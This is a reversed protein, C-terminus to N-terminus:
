ARRPAGSAIAISCGSQSCSKGGAIRSRAYAQSSRYRAGQSPCPVYPGVSWRVFRGAASPVSPVPALDQLRGEAPGSETPTIIRVHGARLGSRAPAVLGWGCPFSGGGEPRSKGPPTGSRISDKLGDRMGRRKAAMAPNPRLSAGNAGPSAGSVPRRAKRTNRPAGRPQGRGLAGNSRRHLPSSAAPRM